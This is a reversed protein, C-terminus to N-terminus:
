GRYISADDPADGRLVALVNHACYLCMQRYTADTWGAVHPTLIVNPLAILKLDDTDPPQPAFVDAAFGALRHELLAQHLAQSDILAGRATNILFAGPKMQAFEAAGFIGRTEETLPVHLSVIDAQALLDPLTIHEVGDAILAPSIPSRNTCLIRM